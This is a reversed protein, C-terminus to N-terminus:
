YSYTSSNKINVKLESDLKKLYEIITEEEHITSRVPLFPQEGQIESLDANSTYQGTAYIIDDTTAYRNLLLAWAANILTFLSIKKNKCFTDISETSAQNIFIPKQFYRHEYDNKETEFDELWMKTHSSFNAILKEWYDSEHTEDNTGQPKKVPM